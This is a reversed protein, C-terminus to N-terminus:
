CCCFVRGTRKRFWCYTLMNGCVFLGLFIWMVYVIPLSVLDNGSYVNVINGTAVSVFFITIMWCCCSLLTYNRDFDLDIRSRPDSWGGTGITFVILTVCWFVSQLIFALGALVSLIVGSFPYPSGPEPDTFYLSVHYRNM